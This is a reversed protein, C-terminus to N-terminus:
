PPPRVLASAPWPALGPCTRHLWTNQINHTTNTSDVLFEQLLIPGVLSPLKPTKWLGLFPFYVGFEWKMAQGSHYERDMIKIVGHLVLAERCASWKRDDFKISVQGKDYLTTWLTRARAQPLSDDLNKDIALAYECVSLFVSVFEASVICVTQTHVTQMDATLDRRHYVHVLGGPFRSRAWADYKGINVSGTACRAPDFSRGIFKLIGKVRVRRKDLNDTWTGSHLGRDKLFAMAEDLTPVRKLYRSYRLLADRQRAFSDPQGALDAVDLNVKLPSKVQQASPPSIVKVQVRQQVPSPTPPTKSEGTYLGLEELHALAEEVTPKRNLSLALGHIAAQRRVCQDAELGRLDTESLVRGGRYYRESLWLDDDQGLYDAFRYWWGEGYRQELDHRLGPTVLFYGNQIIPTDGLGKKYQNHADLVHQPVSAEIRDCLSVLRSLPVLPTNKFEDLRAFNWDPRYIPLKGYAAWQYTAGDMYGIRGKIEFDALNKHIALYRRIAKELRDFVANAYGPKNGELNVKLLGNSGRQSGAWFISGPILDNVFREADRGAVLTQWAFHLDIDLYLLAMDRWGSSVYYLKRHTKIAQEFAWDHLQHLVYKRGNERDFTHSGKKGKNLIAYAIEVKRPSAEPTDLAWQHRAVFPSFATWTEAALTDM